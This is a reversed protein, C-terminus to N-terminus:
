AASPERDYIQSLGELNIPRTAGTPLPPRMKAFCLARHFESHHPRGPSIEWTEGTGYIRGTHLDTVTGQIITVSETGDHHHWPIRVSLPHERTDIEYETADSFAAVLRLRLGLLPRSIIDRHLPVFIETPGNPQRFDLTLYTAPDVDRFERELQNATAQLSKKFANEFDAKDTKIWKRVLALIGVVTGLFTSLALLLQNWSMLHEAATM